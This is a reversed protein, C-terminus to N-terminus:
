QLSVLDGWRCIDTPQLFEELFFLDPLSPFGQRSSDM